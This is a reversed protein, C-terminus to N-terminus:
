RRTWCLKDGNWDQMTISMQEGKIMNMKLLESLVGLKNILTEGKYRVQLWEWAGKGTTHIQIPRSPNDCLASIMVSLLEDDIEDNVIEDLIPALVRKGRLTAM